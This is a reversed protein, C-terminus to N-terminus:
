VEYINTNKCLNFTQSLGMELLDAPVMKELLM